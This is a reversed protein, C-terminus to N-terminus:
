VLELFSDDFGVSALGELTLQGDLISLILDGGVSITDEGDLVAVHFTDPNTIVTSGDSDLFRLTDEGLVFDTIIDFGFDANFEFVDAGAGGTLINDEDNGIIKDDGSGAIVNEIIAGHAISLNDPLQGFDWGIKTTYDYEPFSITSSTGDVLSIDHGLTFNSFDLTDIGSSDWITSAFPITEDWSYTTDTENHTQAGYLFQLAGVDLLMPTHSIAWNDLGNYWGEEPATYSMLSYTNSELSRDVVPHAFTHKLGLAHGIEHLLTLAGMTGTSMDHTAAYADPDSTDYNAIWIDANAYSGGPGFAWGAADKNGNLAHDTMGFRFTGVIDDTESIEHFYINAVDSFASLAERTDDKQEDTFGWIKDNSTPDPTTYVDGFNSADEEVFSFTIIIDDGDGLGQGNYFPDSAFHTALGNTQIITGLVDPEVPATGLESTVETLNLNEVLTGSTDYGWPSDSDSRTVPVLSFIESGPDGEFVLLYNDDGSTKYIHGDSVPGSLGAATIIDAVETAAAADIAAVDDGDAVETRGIVDIPVIKDAVPQGTWYPIQKLQGGTVMDSYLIPASVLDMDGKSATVNINTLDSLSLYGGGVENFTKTNVDYYVNDKLKVTNGEIEVFQGSALRVTDFDIGTATVAGLEDGLQFSNFNFPTFTFGGGDTIAASDIGFYDGDGDLVSLVGLGAVDGTVAIRLDIAELGFGGGSSVDIVTGYDGYGKDFYWDDNLYVKNGDVTFGLDQGDIAFVINPEDNSSSLTITGLETFNEQPPEYPSMGPIQGSALIISNQDVFQWGDESSGTVEYVRENNFDMAYNGTPLRPDNTWDDDGDDLYIGFFGDSHRYIPLDVDGGGSGDDFSLEGIFAGPTFESVAAVKLSINPDGGYPDPLDVDGLFTPTSSLAQVIDNYMNLQLLINADLNPTSGIVAAVGAADLDSSIQDQRTDDYELTFDNAGDAVPILTYSGDSDEVLLLKEDTNVIYVDGNVLGTSGAGKIAAFELTNAAINTTFTPSNGLFLEVDHDNLERMPTRNNDYVLQGSSSPDDKVPILTFTNNIETVLVWENGSVDFVDGDATTFGGGNVATAGDHYDDGYLIAKGADQLLTQMELGVSADSMPTSIINTSVAPDYEGVVEIYAPKSPDAVDVGASGLINMDKDYHSFGLMEQVAHGDKDVAKAGVLSVFEIDRETYKLAGSGYTSDPAFYKILDEEYKALVSMDDVFVEYGTYTLGGEEYTFFGGMYEDTAPNLLEYGRDTVNIFAMIPGDSSSGSNSDSPSGYGGGDSSIMEVLVLQGDSTQKLETHSKMDMFLPNQMMIMEFDSAVTPDPDVLAGFEPVVDIIFTESYPKGGPDKSQITIEYYPKLTYNPAAKLSLEGSSPDFDFFDADPGLLTYTFTTDNPDPDITAVTGVVLEGDASVLRDGSLTIAEPASNLAATDVAASDKFSINAVGGAKQTEAAEKVQDQLVQMTSFINKTADADLDTVTAIKDNVNKIAATTDDALANMTAADIGDLAAAKSTAETKILALDAANTFDIEKDAVAANPDDIKDAKTKVVDVVSGLAATFADGAAAGAGEAASAFSTVATMIQQSVKEVELAAAVAAADNEDVDFPNFTLPDIGDPLGLVAAVDEASIGGEEMLTTTPTIVGAGSPATLTVGSLAAGSSTDVTQYDAMAVLTYESQTATLEYQGFSDTRAFPENADLVGDDNYDLFVLANSLPGKVVAGGVANQAVYPSRCASVAVLALPSIVYFRNFAM